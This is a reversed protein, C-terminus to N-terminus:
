QYRSTTMSIFLVVLALLWPGVAVLLALKQDNRVLSCYVGAAGLGLFLVAFIATATQSYKSTDLM